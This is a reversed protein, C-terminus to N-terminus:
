DTWCWAYKIVVHGKPMKSVSKVKSHYPQLVSESFNRIQLIAFQSQSFIAIECSVCNMKRLAPRLRLMVCNSKRSPRLQSIAFDAFSKEFFDLFINVTINKPITYRIIIIMLDKEDFENMAFNLNKFSKWTWFSFVVIKRFKVCNRNRMKEYDFYSKSLPIAIECSVCNSNRGM